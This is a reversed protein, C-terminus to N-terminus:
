SRQSLSPHLCLDIYISPISLLLSSSFAKQLLSKLPCEADNQFGNCWPLSIPKDPVPISPKLTCCPIKIIHSSLSPQIKFSHCLFFRSFSIWSVESSTFVAQLSFPVRQTLCSPAITRSSFAVSCFLCTFLKSNQPNKQDQVSLWTGTFHFLSLSFWVMALLLYSCYLLPQLLLDAALCRFKQQWSCYASPNHIANSFTFELWHNITFLLSFLLCNFSFPFFTVPLSTSLHPSHTLPSLSFSIKVLLTIPSHSAAPVLSLPILHSQIWQVFSLILPSGCSLFKQVQWITSILITWPNRQLSSCPSFFKFPQSQLHPILNFQFVSIAQSHLPCFRLFLPFFFRRELSPLQGPQQTQAM